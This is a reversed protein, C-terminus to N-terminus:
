APRGRELGVVRREMNAVTELLLLREEDFDELLKELKEELWDIRCELAFVMEDDSM